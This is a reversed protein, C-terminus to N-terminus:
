RQQGLDVRVTVYVHWQRSTWQWPGYEHRGSEGVRTGSGGGRAIPGTVVTAARQLEGHSGGVLQRKGAAVHVGIRKGRVGGEGHVAGVVGLGSGGRAGAGSGGGIGRRGRGDVFMRRRGARGRYARLRGTGAHQARLAVKPRAMRGERGLAGVLSADVAVELDAM